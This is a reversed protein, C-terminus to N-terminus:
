CRRALFNKEIPLILCFSQASHYNTKIALQCVVIEISIKQKKKFHIKKNIAVVFLCSFCSLFNCLRQKDILQYRFRKCKKAIVTKQENSGYLSSNLHKLLKTKKTQKLDAIFFNCRLVIGLRNSHSLILFHFFRKSSSSSFSSSHTLRCSCQSRSLSLLWPMCFMDM